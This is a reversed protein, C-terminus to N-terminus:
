RDKFLIRVQNNPVGYHRMLKNLIEFRDAGLVFQLMRLAWGFVRLRRSSGEDVTLSNFAAAKKAGRRSILRHRAAFDHTVSQASFPDKDTSLTKMGAQYRRVLPSILDGNSFTAFGYPELRYKEFGNELLAAAYREFLPRLDPRNDLTFRSQHKSITRFNLPNIGSFHFFILDSDVEPGHVLYKADMRAAIVREHINWYAVNCGAHKFVIVGSFYSPVLDIWRQDVFLGMSPECFGQALCRSEWWSLFRLTGPTNKVGIFGLNYVGCRLLDRDLPRLGDPEPFPSLAHPTLLIEGATLAEDLTELSRYCYIDPDFYYVIPYGRGLVHKLLTPKVNTNLEVIDFRFAVALWDSIGLDELFLVHAGRHTFGDRGVARDVILVFFDCEPNAVLFSDALTKAYAFYNKSVITCAASRRLRQDDGTTEFKTTM